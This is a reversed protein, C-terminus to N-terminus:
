KNGGLGNFSGSEVLSYITEINNTQVNQVIMYGRAYVMTDTMDGVSINMTVAGSSTLSGSQGKKVNEGDLVLAGEQALSADTGYLVGHEILEYGEPVSRTATFSVKNKGNVVSAFKDTIAIVPMAKVPKNAYVAILTVDSSVRILYNPEYSLIMNKSDTWCTFIKGDIPKAVATFGSGKAVSHTESTGDDYKVTVTFTTDDQTYVPTVTIHKEGAAIKSKIEDVTLSWRVFTYGLKSPAVPVAIEQDASYSKYSLLQGYGSVYEVMAQNATDAKYMLKITMNGTVTLEISAGTGIVKDSGNLWASVKAPDKAAFVIPTGIPAQISGTIADGKADLIEAGNILEFTITATGYSEYKAVLDTNETVTFSYVLEPSAQTDGSYWGLFRCGPVSLAEVAATQGYEYEDGGQVPAVTTDPSGDLSSTVTVTFTETVTVEYIGSTASYGDLTVVCYYQTTGYETTDPTYSTTVAGEIPEPEADASTKKYWQVAADASANPYAESYLIDYALAAAPAGKEYRYMITETIQFRVPMRAVIVAENVSNGDLEAASMWRSVGDVVGAAVYKFTKGSYEELLESIKRGEPLTIHDEVTGGYIMVSGNIVDLGDVVTLSSEESALELAYAGESSVASNVRIAHHTDNRVVIESLILEGNVIVTAEGTGTITATGGNIGMNSSLFIRRGAPVTLPAEVTRDAFVVVDTYDSPATTTAYEWADAFNEFYKAIPEPPAESPEGSGSPYSVMAALPTGCDACTNNETNIVTHECPTVTVTFIQTRATYRDLTAECFYKTTGAESVDPTYTRGTAGDILTEAGNVLKYWRITLGEVDQDQSPYLMKSDIPEVSTSGQMYEFNLRDEATVNFFYIPAQVIEVPGLSTKNLDDGIVWEETASKYYASRSYLIDGVTRGDSVTIHHTVNCARLIVKGTGHVEVGDVTKEIDTMELGTYGDESAAAYVRISCNKANKITGEGFNLWGYVDITSAATGTLTKNNEVYLNLEKDAPIKLVKDVTVDAYIFLGDCKKSLAYEWAEELNDFFRDDRGQPASSVYHLVGAVMQKHCIDCVGTNKNGATHTCTIEFTKTINLDPNNIGKIIVKATGPNVNNIYTVTYDVGETLPKNECTVTVTPTIGAGSYAYSEGEIAAEYHLQHKLALYGGMGTGNLLSSDPTNQPVVSLGFADNNVYRVAYGDAIYGDPISVVASADDIVGRNPGYIWINYDTCNATFVAGENIVFTNAYGESTGGLLVGRAGSVSLNGSAGIILRGGSIARYSQSNVTLSGNVTLVGNVSGSAGYQVDGLVTVNAGSDITIQNHDAGSGGLIGGITLSGNGTIILNYKYQSYQYEDYYKPRKVSVFGGVSSDGQLIITISEVDDPLAINGPIICDKLTLTCIKNDEGSENPASEWHYGDTELVGPNEVEGTFDLDASIVHSGAKAVFVNSLSSVTTDTIETNDAANFFAYGPALISGVQEGEPMTITTFSGGSLKTNTVTGTEKYRLTGITGGTITLDTGPCIVLEGNVEGGTITAKADASYFFINNRVTGGNMIFESSDNLNVNATSGSNITLKSSDGNLIADGFSGGAADITLEASDSEVSMSGATFEVFSDAIFNLKGNTSLNFKPIDWGSHLKVTVPNGSSKSLADANKVIEELRAADIPAETTGIYGQSTGGDTVEVDAQKGCGTCSGNTFGSNHDCTITFNEYISDFSYNGGEKVTICVYPTKDFGFSQGEGGNNGYSVEYEGPDITVDTGNNNWTLTPIPKIEVGAWTYTDNDLTITIDEETLTRPTINGTATLEENTLTYNSGEALAITVTVTKGTGVDPTDFVAAATYDAEGLVIVDGNHDTFTVDAVAADTNGDYAKDAIEVAAVTLENHLTVVVTAEADDMNEDGIFKATLTVPTDYGAGANILEIVPVSMIYLGNADAGAPESVQAGNYYLAMQLATPETLSFTSVAMAPAEGTPTPIATVTITDSYGFDSTAVGNLSTEISGIETASQLLTVTKEMQIVTEMCTFSVSYTVDGVQEADINWASTDATFEKGCINVPAYTIAELFANGTGSGYYVLEDPLIIMDETLNETTFVGEGIISSGTISGGYKIALTGNNTITGNNTLIVGAPISLSSGENITFTQNANITLSETLTQKGYVTGSDGEFIVGSWTGNEKGSKDSISSAVILADGPVGDKITSFTGPSGGQGTGIGAGDVSRANVMGGTIIVTGSSSGYGGGIGAGTESQANVTGGTITITQVGGGMWGGGIGAAYKCTANINGGNITINGCTGREMSGIAANYEVGSDSPATVNLTGSGDGAANITFSNDMEVIISGNVTLTSGEGLILTVNGYVAVNNSITVNGVVKFYGNEWKTDSGTVLTASAEDAGGTLMAASDAENLQAQLVLCLTIDVENQEAPSLQSYLDLIDQLRARVEEANEKTVEAPLESILQNILQVQPNESSSTENAAPTAETASPDPQTESPTTVESAPGSPMIEEAAPLESPATTVVPTDEAMVTPTM